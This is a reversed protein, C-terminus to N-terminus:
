ENTVESFQYVETMKGDIKCELNQKAECRDSIGKKGSFTFYEYKKPKFHMAILLGTVFLILLAAVVSTRILIDKRM